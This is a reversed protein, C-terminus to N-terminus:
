AMRRVSTVESGTATIREIAERASEFAVTMHFANAHILTTADRAIAVHDKWFLLDGRQLESLLVASGLAREQMDSDRPCTVGSATLALQVLGSCDIGLSTRGGWLYPVGIFREAIAVFDPESIDVPMLHRAPVFGNTDTVALPGEIRTIALRCGLSLGELPPLKISPGPFVLTRPVAVRHTPSPGPDRLASTPLWGVYGDAALQGWSWGEENSDYITVREGKLAETDLPADPSPSRRLPAQPEAIERVHGDVFRVAEVKGALKSAALDPRAPTIRPDYSTM